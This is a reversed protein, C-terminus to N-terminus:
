DVPLHQRRHEGLQLEVGGDEVRSVLVEPELEAREGAREEDRIHEQGRHEAPEAVPPRAPRQHAGPHDDPTQGAAPGPQGGPNATRNSVRHRTPIPSAAYPGTAGAMSDSRYGSFTRPRIM